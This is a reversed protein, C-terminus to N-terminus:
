VRYGSERKKLHHQARSIDLAQSRSSFDIFVYWSSPTWIFSACFPSPLCPLHVWCPWPKFNPATKLERDMSNAYANFKNMWQINENCCTKSINCPSLSSKQHECVLNIAYAAYLFLHAINTIIGLLYVLFPLSFLSSSLFLYTRHNERPLHGRKHFKFCIRPLNFVVQVLRSISAGISSSQPSQRVQLLYYTCLVFTPNLMEM